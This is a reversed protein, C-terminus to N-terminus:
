SGTALSLRPIENDKAEVIFRGAPREPDSYMSGPGNRSPSNTAAASDAVMAQPEDLSADTEVVLILYEGLPAGDRPEYTGIRFSGDRRVTARPYGLPWTESRAEDDAPYLVVIVDRAPSGDFYLEGSVPYVPKRQSPDVGSDRCGGCGPLAALTLCIALWALASKSMGLSECM